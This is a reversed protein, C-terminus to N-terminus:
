KKMTKKSPKKEGMKMSMMKKMKKFQEDTLIGRMEKMTKLIELHHATKLDGIKRVAANAKEIDFDKVEMIEKLDIEAIKLDAKFRAQKKQMENHGPKMKAVQEETLGIRDANELCMGMMEGMRDMDGMAMMPGHGGGPGMMPMDHMQAPAPAPAAIGMLAVVALVSISRIAKM